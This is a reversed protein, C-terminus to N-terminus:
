AMLDIISGVTANSAEIVKGSAAFMLENKKLDIISGTLQDLNQDPGTSSVINHAAQQMGASARQLGLLGSHAASVNM